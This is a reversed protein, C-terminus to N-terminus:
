CKALAGAASLTAASEPKEGPIDIQLSTEGVLITDAAQLRQKGKGKIEEGSVQTGRTSGLDEIWYQGEELWIRAHLRSVAVDPTLDLDVAIDEKRRGIIVQTAQREFIRQKGQYSYLIRITM